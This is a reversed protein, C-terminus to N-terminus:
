NKRSTESDRVRRQHAGFEYGENGNLGAAPEPYGQHCADIEM